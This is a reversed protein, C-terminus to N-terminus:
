LTQAYKNSQLINKEYFQKLLTYLEDGLYVKFLVEAEEKNYHKAILSYNAIIEDFQWKIGRGYYDSGHGFKGIIPTGYEDELKGEVFKGEYIADFIDSIALIHGFKTRIIADVMMGKRIERDTQIYDDVTIKTHDPIVGRLLNESNQVTEIYEEIEKRKEETISEDYKPMYVHEVYAEVKEKLKIHYLSFKKTAKKFKDSVRLEAILSEIEETEKSESVLDYLMHGIEHSLTSITPSDLYITKSPPCYSAGIGDLKITVEPNNQKIEIIRKIEDKYEPNTSLLFTYLAELADLLKKDSKGDNMTELLTSILTKSEEDIEKQKYTDIVDSLYEAKAEDIVISLKSLEKEMNALRVLIEIRPDELMEPTIVKELTTKKDYQLMYEVLTLGLDEDLLDEKTFPINIGHKIYILAIQSLEIYPLHEDIKKIQISPDQKQEEIILDLFTTNLDYYNLLASLSINKYLDKRKREIILNVIEPSTIPDTKIPLNRDLLEEILMKNLSYQELLLAESCNTILEYKNYKILIKITEFNNVTKINPTVNNDLLYELLTKNVSQLKILLVKENLNSLVDLRNNRLLITIIQKNINDILDLNELVNKCMINKELLFEFLTKEGEVKYLAEYRSLNSLLHYQKRKLIEEIVAKEYVPGFECKIDLEILEDLLLKGDERPNLFYLTDITKILDERNYKKICKLLDKCDLLSIIMNENVLNNKFLYEILPVGHIKINDIEYTVDEIVKTYGNSLFYELLYSNQAILTCSFYDVPLRDRIIIDIIKIGDIEDLLVNEINNKNTKYLLIRFIYEHLYKKKKTERYTDLLEQESMSDLNSKFGFDFDDWKIDGM